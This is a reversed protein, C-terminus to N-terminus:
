EVLIVCLEVEEQGLWYGFYNEVVGSSSGSEVELVDDNQSLVALVQLPHVFNLIRSASVFNSISYLHECTVRKYLLSRGLRLYSSTHVGWWSLWQCWPYRGWFPSSSSFFSRRQNSMEPTMVEMLHSFGHSITQSNWTGAFESLNMSQANMPIFNMISSDFWFSSIKQNMLAPCRRNPDKAFSGLSWSFLVVMLIWVLRDLDIADWQRYPPYQYPFM